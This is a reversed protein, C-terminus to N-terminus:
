ATSALSCFLLILMLLSNALTTFVSAVVLYVSTNKKPQAAEKKAPKRTAKRAVKKTVKKALKKAAKVKKVAKKPLRAKLQKELARRRGKGLLELKGEALMRAEWQKLEERYKEKRM